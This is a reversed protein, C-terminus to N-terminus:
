IFLTSEFLVKFRLTVQIRMETCSFGELRVWNEWKNQGSYFIKANSEFYEPGVNSQVNPYFQETKGFVTIEFM